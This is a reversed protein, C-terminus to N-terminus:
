DEMANLWDLGDNEKQIAENLAERIKSHSTALEKLKKHDEEKGSLEWIKAAQLCLSNAFQAAGELEKISNSM